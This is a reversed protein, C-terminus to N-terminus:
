FLIGSLQGENMDPLLSSEAGSAPVNRGNPTAVPFRGPIGPGAMARMVVM